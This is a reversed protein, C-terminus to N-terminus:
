YSDEWYFYRYPCQEVQQIWNQFLNIELSLQKFEKGDFDPKKAVEYILPSIENIDINTNEPDTTTSNIAKSMTSIWILIDLLQTKTLLMCNAGLSNKVYGGKYIGYGNEILDTVIQSIALCINKSRYSIIEDLGNEVPNELDLTQLRYFFKRAQSNNLLFEEKRNIGYIILDRSM